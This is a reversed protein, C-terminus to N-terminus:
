SSVTSRARHRPAADAAPPLAVTEYVGLWRWDLHRASEDTAVTVILPIAGDNLLDATLERERRSLDGTTLVAVVEHRALTARVSRLIGGAIHEGACTLVLEHEAALGALAPSTSPDALVAPSIEAIAL